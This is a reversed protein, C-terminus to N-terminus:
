MHIYWLMQLTRWITRTWSTERAAHRLESIGEKDIWRGDIGVGEILQLAGINKRPDASLLLMNAKAGVVIQGQQALHLTQASLVTASAIAQAPSLGSDVLLALEEHLSHGPVLGFGGADSGAILPVGRQFLFGTAKLFFDAHPREYSAPDMASWYDLSGQEFWTLLPNITDAGPQLLYRGRSEAINVLRRHAILTPTITDGGLLLANAVDDLKSLNLDDRLAHWVVTEIHELTQFGRGVSRQWPITFPAQYPIDDSRHGEPSHGSIPMGLQQARAVAAEMADLTLNSYIKLSRFGSQHFKEVAQSAQSANEVIVQNLGVNRGPSNLIPSTTILEPGLLQGAQLKEALSLHFPFGSMNRLGTVGFALYGALEAEDHVHVHADILGPVLTKGSANIRRGPIDDALEAMPLRKAIVGDRIIVAMDELLTDPQSVDEMSLVNVHTIVIDTQTPPKTLALPPTTLKSGGWLIAIFCTAVAIKRTQMM